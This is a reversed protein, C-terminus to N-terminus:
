ADKKPPKPAPKSEAPQESVLAGAAPERAPTTIDVARAQVDAEETSKTRAEEFTDNDQVFKAVGQPDITAAADAEFTERARNVGGGPPNQLDAVGTREAYHSIRGPLNSAFEPVLFYEVGESLTKDFGQALLDEQVEHPLRTGNHYGNAGVLLSSTVGNPGPGGSTTDILRTVGLQLVYQYTAATLAM